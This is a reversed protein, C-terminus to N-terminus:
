NPDSEGGPTTGLRYLMLQTGPFRHNEVRTGMTVLADRLVRREGRFTHSVVVWLRRADAARQLDRGLEEMNHRPPRGLVADMPEHRTYFRFAPISTYLVYVADGSRVHRELHRVLPRMEQPPFRPGTWGGYLSPILLAGFLGAALLKHGGLIRWLWQIGSAILLLAIPVTFLVFRSKVESIGTAVPYKGLASAIFLLVIPAVLVAHFRAARRNRFGAILGAVLGLAPLVTVSRFGLPFQFFGSWSLWWWWRQAATEVLPAFAARNATYLEPSITPRILVVYLALYYVMLAGFATVMPIAARSRTSTLALVALVLGCGGAVFVFSYSFWPGLIGVILFGLVASPQWRRSLVRHAAILVLVTFFLDASQPKFEGCYFIATSCTAMPLYALPAVERGLATISLRVFLVLAGVGLLLPLLYLALEHYDFLEGVIKSSLLFGAPAAQNMDLRGLLEWGNRDILNLALMSPDLWLSRQEFYFRVRLAIGLVIAAAALVRFIGWGTIDGPTTRRRAPSAFPADSM